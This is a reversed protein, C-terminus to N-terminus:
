PWFFNVGPARQNECCVDPCCRARVPTCLRFVAGVGAGASCLLAVSPCPIGARSKGPSIRDGARDAPRASQGRPERRGMKWVQEAEQPGVASVDMGQVIPKRQPSHSSPPFLSHTPSHSTSEQILPCSHIFSSYTFSHM